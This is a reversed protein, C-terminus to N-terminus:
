GSRILNKTTETLSMSLKDLLLRLELERLELFARRTWNRLAFCVDLPIDMPLTEYLEAFSHHHHDVAAKLSSPLVPIHLPMCAARYTPFQERFQAIRTVPEHQVPVLITHPFRRQLAAYAQVSDPHLDALFLIIPEIAHERAEEFFGIQAALAFFPKFLLSHLDIVKSRGDNIVLQDFLAMQGKTNSIDAVVTHFPAHEALVPELPSIEYARVPRDDILYFGILLRALFTKGSGPRPSAVIYIPTRGSRLAVEADNASKDLATVM